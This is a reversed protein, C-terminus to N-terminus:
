TPYNILPYNDFFYSLLLFLGLNIELDKTLTKIQLVVHNGDSNEITYTGNYLKAIHSTM